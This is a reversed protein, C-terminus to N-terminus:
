GGPLLLLKGQVQGEQLRQLADMGQRLPFVTDVVAQLRGTFVLGMVREYDRQTGMTSGIISLHKGFMYRNDFEFQPGSSNGVTLLRGGKRLSRLSNHFTAAGVNDVVVDVGRKRTQQYVAKSWNEERRNILVDAGLSEALALKEDSSGVVYIKRAGALRAIQIAATNVGGGAGVVLVDEGARLRGAEILSHWATVFVLSAAAATEFSVNDPLPLLNRAPVVTYEAFFGPVHEGIVSFRRCQNERGALCYECEGCWSSPNVAVRDGPTLSDVGPGVEAIIGAGDSGFVHPFQLRLGPWGEVVWLDLGNLAAAKVQLLVEGPGPMPRESEGYTVKSLDGHEQLLLG